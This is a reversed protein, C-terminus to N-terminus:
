VEHAGVTVGPGVELLGGYWRERRCCLSDVDLHRVFLGFVGSALCGGSAILPLGVPWDYYGEDVPPGDVAELGKELVAPRHRELLSLQEFQSYM